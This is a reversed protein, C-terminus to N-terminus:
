KKDKVWLCDFCIRMMLRVFLNPVGGIRPRYVLSSAGPRGGFMYCQWESLEPEIRMEVYEEKSM